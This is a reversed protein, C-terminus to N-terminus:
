AKDRRRVEGVGPCSNRRRTTVRWLGKLGGQSKPVRTGTGPYGGPYGPIRRHVDIAPCGRRPLCTYSRFPQQYYM